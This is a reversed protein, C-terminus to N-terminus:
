SFTANKGVRKGMDFREWNSEIEWPGLWQTRHKVGVLFEVISKFIIM